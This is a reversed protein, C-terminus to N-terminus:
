KEKEGGARVLISAPKAGDERGYKTSTAHAIGDDEPAAVGRDFAPM